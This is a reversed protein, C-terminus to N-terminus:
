LIGKCNGDGLIEVKEKPPVREHFDGQSPLITGAFGYSVVFTYPIGEAEIARRINSKDRFLSGAPEVPHICNVDSGFESPLFRQCKMTM